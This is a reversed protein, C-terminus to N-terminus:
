SGRSKKRKRITARGAEEIRLVRLSTRQPSDTGNEIPDDQDLDKLLSLANTDCLLRMTESGPIRTTQMRWIGRCLKKRVELRNKKEEETKDM